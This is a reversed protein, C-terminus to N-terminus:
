MNIEKSTTIDAHEEVWNCGQNNFSRPRNNSPKYLTVFFLFDCCRTGDFYLEYSHCSSVLDAEWRHMDQLAHRLGQWLLVAGDVWDPRALRGMMVYCGIEGSTWRKQFPCNWVVGLSVQRVFGKVVTLCVLRTRKRQKYVFFSIESMGCLALDRRSFVSRWFAYDSRSNSM